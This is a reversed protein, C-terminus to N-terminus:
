NQINLFKDVEANSLILIIDAFIMYKEEFAYAFFSFTM